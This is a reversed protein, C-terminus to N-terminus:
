PLCFGQVFFLGNSCWTNKFFFWRIKRRTWFVIKCTYSCYAKRCQWTMKLSVNFYFLM